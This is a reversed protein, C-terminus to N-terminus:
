SPEQSLQFEEPFLEISPNVSAARAASKVYLKLELMGLVILAFVENPVAFAAPNLVYVVLKQDHFLQTWLM